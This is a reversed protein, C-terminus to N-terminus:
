QPNRAFDRLGELSKTKQPDNGNVADSVNRGFTANTTAATVLGQSKARDLIKTKNADQANEFLKQVDEVAKIQKAQEDRFSKLRDAVAATKPDVRHRMTQRIEAQTALRTAAEGTAFWQIHKDSTEAPSGVNTEHDIVALFSPMHVEWEGWSCPANRVGPSLAARVYGTGKKEVLYTGYVEVVDGGALASFAVPQGGRLIVTRPTVLYLWDKTLKVVQSGDAAVETALVTGSISSAPRASVPALAWEKRNYGLKVSDPYQATAGSWRVKLGFSTDTGFVFPKVQGPGPMSVDYTHIAAKPQATACRTSDVIKGTPSDFLDALTEAADGGAFTSSVDAMVGLIGTFSSRFSALVPLKHGEVTPGIVHERRSISLEATPPATDINLGVNATTFFLTRNYGIGCGWVTAAALGLM